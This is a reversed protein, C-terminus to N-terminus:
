GHIKGLSEQLNWFKTNVEGAEHVVVSLASLQNYLNPVYNCNTIAISNRFLFNM